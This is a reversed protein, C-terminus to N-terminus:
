ALVRSDSRIELAIWRKRVIRTVQMGMIVQPIEQMIM